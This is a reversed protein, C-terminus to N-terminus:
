LDKPSGLVGNVAARPEELTKRPEPKYKVHVFRVWQKVQVDDVSRQTLTVRWVPIKLVDVSSRVVSVM